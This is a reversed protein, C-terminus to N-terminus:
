VEIRSMHKSVQVPVEYKLMVNNSDDDDRNINNTKENNKHIQTTTIAKFQCKHQQALVSIFM